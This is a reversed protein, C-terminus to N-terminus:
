RWWSFLEPLHHERWARSSPPRESSPSHRQNSTGVFLFRRLVGFFLGLQARLVLLPAFFVALPRQLM